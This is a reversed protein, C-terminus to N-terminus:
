NLAKFLASVRTKLLIRERTNTNVAQVLSELKSEIASLRDPVSLKPSTSEAGSIGIARRLSLVGRELNTVRSSLGTTPSGSSSKIGSKPSKKHSSRLPSSTTSPNIGSPLRPSSSSQKNREYTAFPDSANPFPTSIQRCQEWDAAESSIDRSKGPHLKKQKKASFQVVNKLPSCPKNVVGRQAAAIDDQLQKTSSKRSQLSFLGLSSPSEPCSLLAIDESETVAFDDTEASLDIPTAPSSDPAGKDAELPGTARSRLFEVTSSVSTSAASQQLDTRVKKVLPLSNLSRTSLQRKNLNSTPAPPTTPQEETDSDTDQSSSAHLLNTSGGDDSEQESCPSIGVDKSNLGPNQGSM